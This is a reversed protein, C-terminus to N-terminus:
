RPQFDEIPNDHRAPQAPEFIRLAVPSFHSSEREGPEVFHYNPRRFYRQSDSPALGATLETVSNPTQQWVITSSGGNAAPTPLHHVIAYLGLIAIAALGMGQPSLLLDKTQIRMRMWLMAPSRSAWQAEEWTAAYAIREQLDSAPHQTRMCGLMRKMQLFSEYEQNCEPCRSLHEFVQRHEVGRLEGDMYASLLQNAKRCNM